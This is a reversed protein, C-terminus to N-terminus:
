KRTHLYNDCTQLLATWKDPGAHQLMISIFTACVDKKKQFPKISSDNMTRRVSDELMQHVKSNDEHHWPHDHSAVHIMDSEVSGYKTSHSKDEAQPPLELDTEVKERVVHSLPTMRLGIRLSLYDSMAESWKMISFNKTIKPTEATVKAKKEPTDWQYKFNVITPNWQVNDVTIDRSITVYFRMIDNAVLM